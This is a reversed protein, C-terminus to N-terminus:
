KAAMEQRVTHYLSEAKLDAIAYCPSKLHDAL